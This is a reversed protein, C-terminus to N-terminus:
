ESDRDEFTSIYEILSDFIKKPAEKYEAQLVEGTEAQWIVIGDIHTEELVYLLNSINPNETRNKLTADIVNLGAEESFGTLEHGGCSVAGYLQLYERYDDSFKLGLIKEANKIADASAGKECYFDRKRKFVESLTSM